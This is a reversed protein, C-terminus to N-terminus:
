TQKINNLFSNLVRLDHIFSQMNRKRNKKGAQIKNLKGVVAIIFIIKKKNEKIRTEELTL